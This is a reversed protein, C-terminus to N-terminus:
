LWEPPYHGASIIRQRVGVRQPDNLRLLAVTARGVPTLGRLLAGVVEFHDSWAQLRPNFLPVIVGEVPDIATLDYGKHRNCGLCALALNQGTTQGRHRIPIIHDIHHSFATHQQDLLGYECCGRAREVVLRRLTESIRASPM